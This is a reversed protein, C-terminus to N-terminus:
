EKNVRTAAQQGREQEMERALKHTSRRMEGM